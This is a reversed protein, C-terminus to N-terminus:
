VVFETVIQVALNYIYDRLVPLVLPNKLIPDNLETLFDLVYINITYHGECPGQFGLAEVQLAM